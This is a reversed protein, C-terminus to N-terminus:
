DSTPASFILISGGISASGGDVDQGTNVAAGTLGQAWTAGTTRAFGAGPLILHINSSTGVSGAAIGEPSLGGGVGISGVLLSGGSATGGITGGWALFDVGSATTISGSPGLIISASGKGEGVSITGVTTIDINANTIIATSGSFITLFTGGEAAVGFTITQTTEGSIGTIGDKSLTLQKSSFLTGAPGGFQYGSKSATDYGTITKGETLYVGGDNSFVFINSGTLNIMSDGLSLTGKGGVTISTPKLSLSLSGLGAASFTGEGLYNNSSNGTVILQGGQDLLFGNTGPNEFTKAILNGTLTKGEAITVRAIEAENVFEVDDNFKFTVLDTDAGAPAIPAPTFKVPGNFEADVTVLTGGFAVVGSKNGGFKGSLAQFWPVGISGRDIEAINATVSGAGTIFNVFDTDTPIIVNGLVQALINGSLQPDKAGGTLKGSVTVATSTIIKSVGTLNGGVSLTGNNTDLAVDAAMELNGAYIVTTGALTSLIKGDSGLLGSSSTVVKYYKDDDTKLFGNEDFAVLNDTGVFNPSDLPLGYVIPTKGQADVKGGTGWDLTGNVVFTTNENLLVTNGNLHLTKGAPIALFADELDVTRAVYVDTADEFALAINYADNAYGRAPGPVPYSSSDSDSSCGALALGMALAAILFLFSKHKM